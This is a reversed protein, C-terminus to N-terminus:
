LLPLGQQKAQPPEEKIQEKATQRRVARQKADDADEYFGRRLANELKGFLGARRALNRHRQETDLLERLLEFHVDDDDCVERLKKVEDAGFASHEHLAPGPYKRGTAEEYIGPLSDEFEHKEVVWLRRIEHLEAPTILELDSVTDPGLERVGEQAELLLKLWEERTKQKYPGPIPEGKFLQVHGRMRRFDRTTRDAKKLLNRFELLPLMWEKEHDNQIMASMSKDEDVLTCVWCGFRSDGCSPTTTDVVLPCEGDASAGQYM